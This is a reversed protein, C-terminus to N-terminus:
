PTVARESPEANQVQEPLEPLPRDLVRYSALVSSGFVAVGLLGATALGRGSRHWGMAKVIVGLWLVWWALILADLRVAVPARYHWFLPVRYWPLASRGNAGQWTQEPDGATAQLVALLALDLNNELEPSAGDLAEARAFADVAEKPLDALLLTTGYNYLVGGGLSGGDIVERYVRAARLFDKATKASAVEAQAQQWTFSRARDPAASVTAALGVTVLVWVFFRLASLCEAIRGRKAKVISTPDAGPRFGSDFVDQLLREIEDCQAADIGRDALIMHVDRPTFGEGVAGAKDRLFVGVARMVAEPTKARLISRVSRSVASRRRLAADLSRRRRWLALLGVVLLTVVPPACLARVMRSRAFSPVPSLAAASLTIASPVRERRIAMQAASVNTSLGFIADLDIEPAPDVRLPVPATRIVEYERRVTNYFALELPPVEITGSEIPRVRYLYRMGTPTPSSSVDGYQRFREAMLPNDFIGPERMNSMTQDGSIELTLELPDGQRCTQVDLSVSATMRTGLSGIFTVPRGAEPPPTVRVELPESVAFVSTLAHADGQEVIVSGKFRVGGFKCIGETAAKMPIKLRYIWAARGDAWQAAERGLYFVAARRESFFSFMGAGSNVSFDNIRFAGANDRRQLLPNLLQELPQAFAAGKVTGEALFPVDLLVPTREGDPLPNHGAADGSLRTVKIEVTVDFPEELLVSSQSSVFSIAVDSQAEPGVVRVDSISASLVRGGAQLTVAGMKFLGVDDPIVSYVWSTREIVTETRRGNTITINRSSQSRPTGGDIRAQFDGTFVPSAGNPSANDITVELGFSDGLYIQQTSVRATLTPEAAMSAFAFVAVCYFLVFRSLFVSKM